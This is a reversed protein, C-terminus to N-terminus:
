VLRSADNQRYATPSRGTLKKFRLSFYFPSDGALMALTAAGALVLMTKKM